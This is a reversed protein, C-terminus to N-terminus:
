SRHEGAARECTFGDVTAVVRFRKAGAGVEAVQADDLEIAAAPGRAQLRTTFRIVGM